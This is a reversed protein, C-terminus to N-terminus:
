AYELESPTASSVFFTHVKPFTKILQKKIQETEYSSRGFNNVSGINKGVVVRGCVLNFPGIFEPPFIDHTDEGSAAKTHIKGRHWIWLIVSEGDKHGIDTYTTGSPMRMFKSESLLNILQFYTKM